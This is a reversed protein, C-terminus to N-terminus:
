RLPRGSPPRRSRSRDNLGLELSTAVLELKENRLRGVGLERPSAPLPAAAGTPVARGLVGDDARHLPGLEGDLDGLPILGHRPDQADDLRHLHLVLDRRMARAANRLETSAPWATLVPWIM